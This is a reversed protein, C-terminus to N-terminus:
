HGVHGAIWEEAEFKELTGESSLVYEYQDQEWHQPGRIPLGTEAPQTLVQGLVQTLENDSTKPEKYTEYYSMTWVPVFVYGTKIAVHEYGGYPNGGVFNDIYLFPDRSYAIERAGSDTARQQADPTGYGHKKAEVLFDIFEQSLKSM